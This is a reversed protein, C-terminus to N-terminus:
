FQEVIGARCDVVVALDQLSREVMDALSYGDKVLLQRQDAPIPLKAFNEVQWEREGADADPEILDQAVVDILAREAENLQERLDEPATVGLRLPRAAPPLGSVKLLAMDWFPHIMAVGTVELALGVVNAVRGLPRVLDGHRVREFRRELALDRSTM